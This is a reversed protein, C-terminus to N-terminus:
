EGNRGVDSADHLWQLAAIPFADTTRVIAGDQNGTAAGALRGTALRAASATVLAATRRFM